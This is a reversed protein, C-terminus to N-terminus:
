SGAVEAEEDGPFRCDRVQATIVLSGSDVRMRAEPWLKRIMAIVQRNEGHADMVVTTAGRAAAKRVLCRVLHTGLGLGQWADTVAVALEVDGSPGYFSMAHGVVERGHLAVLADRREDVTVMARVTRESPNPLATFFRMVQSRMSMGAVFDRVKGVDEWCARRVRVPRGNTVFISHSSARILM